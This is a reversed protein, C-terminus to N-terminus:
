GYYVLSGMLIRRLKPRPGEYAIPTNSVSLAVYPTNIEPKSAIVTAVLQSVEVQFQDHEISITVNCCEKSSCCGDNEVHCCTASEIDCTSEVSTRVGAQSLFLGLGILAIYVYRLIM